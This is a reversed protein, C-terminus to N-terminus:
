FLGRFVERMLPQRVSRKLLQRPFTGSRWTARFAAQPRRRRPSWSSQRCRTRSWCTFTPARTAQLLRTSAQSPAPVHPRSAGRRRRRRRRRWRPRSASAPFPSEKEIAGSPAEPLEAQCCRSTADTAASAPPEPSRRASGVAQLQRPISGAPRRLSTAVAHAAPSRTRACM